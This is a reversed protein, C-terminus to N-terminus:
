QAATTFTEDAYAAMNGSSDTTLPRWHYTTNPTLGTVTVTEDYINPIGMGLAIPDQVGTTTQSQSAYNATLMQQFGFNPFPQMCNPPQPNNPNCSGPTATGYYVTLTTNPKFVNLYFTATTATVTVTQASDSLQPDISPMGNDSSSIWVFSVPTTYDTWPANCPSSNNECPNAAPIVSEIVPSSGDPNQGTRWRVYDFSEKYVQNFEKVSWTWGGDGGAIQGGASDWVHYFLDDGENLYTSNNSKYWYWAFAPSVLDNLETADFLIGPVLAPSVPLDYADYAFVHNSAIYQTSELWDLTKKIELPIRADPTNGEALDLEYYTILAELALGVQFPAIDYQQQNPNSLNLNYSQDLYGLMVDVARLMFLTNRPFGVLEDGLRDDMLYASVRVYAPYVPGSYYLNRSPNHALLDVATQDTADGTRLYNMEMGYPFQNPEEVFGAQTGIVTDKYPEMALEACRKWHARQSANQYDPMGPVNYDYDAVQQYVRGGDYNWAEFYVSSPIDFYGSFNGNDLGFWPDTDTVNTCWLEANSSGPPANPNVMNNQWTSLGPISPFVVPPTATFAATPLVTFNYTIPVPNGSNNGNLQGQFTGAFQYHGPVAQSNVRLRVTSNTSYLTANYCVNNLSYDGDWGQPPPNSTADLDCLYQATISGNNVVQGTDTNTIVVNEMLVVADPSGSLLNAQLVVYLDNCERSSKSTPSCAPAQTPDGQYVNLGGVPWMSFVLPGNPDTPSTPLTFTLYCSSGCAPTPPGPYSAWFGCAAHTANCRPAEVHSAVYYGWTPYLHYAPFHDVVVVHNTTNDNQVIQRSSAKNNVAYDIDNEIIIISNGPHVTTWQFTVSVGNVPDYTPSVTASVSGPVIEGSNVTASLPTAILAGLMLCILPLMLNRRSRTQAPLCPFTSRGLTM